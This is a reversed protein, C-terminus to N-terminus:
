QRYPTVKIKRSFFQAVWLRGQSDMSLGGPKELECHDVCKLFSGNQDLIHLCDNNSDTVIIQNMIDTLICRPHFPKIREADMCDYRFRVCGTLNLVIVIKANRDTVCIDGNNNEAMDLSYHGDRFIPNGHKDKDIEKTIINDKYCVIKNRGLNHLNVLIDGSRTCCLGKAWYDNPTIILDEITGKSVVQIAKSENEIFILEGQKTMSIDVLNKRCTITEQISGHIDVRTIRKKWGCIWAEDKGICVVKSLPKYDVSISDIVRAENLLMTTSSVPVETVSHSTHSLNAMYKDIEISLKKGQVTETFLPPNKVDIHTSIERYKSLNSNFNIFNTSNKANLIEKNTKVITSLDLILGQLQSLKITLSDLSKMKFAKMLDSSKDFINDVEQHWVKRLKEIEQNKKTYAKTVESIKKKIKDVSSKFRFLLIADIEETEKKIELM